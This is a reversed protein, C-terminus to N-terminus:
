ILIVFIRDFIFYAYILSNLSMKQGTGRLSALNHDCHDKRTKYVYIICLKYLKLIVFVNNNKEQFM